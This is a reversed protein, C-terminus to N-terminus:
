RSVYRVTDETVVFPRFQELKKEGIGNIEMLQDVREFCGNEERYAIIKEATAEGIGKVMMLEDKDATNINVLLERYMVATVTPHESAATIVPINEKATFESIAWIYGAVVLVAAFAAAFWLVPREYLTKRREETIVM